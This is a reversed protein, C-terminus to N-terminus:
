SSFTEHCVRRPAQRLVHRAVEEDILGADVAVGAPLDRGGGEAVVAVRRADVALGCGVVLDLARQHGKVAHGVAEM